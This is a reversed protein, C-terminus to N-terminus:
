PCSANCADFCQNKTRDTYKRCRKFCRDFRQDKMSLSDIPAKAAIPSSQTTSMPLRSANGDHPASVAQVSAETNATNRGNEACNQDRMRIKIERINAGAEDRGQKAGFPSEATEVNGANSKLNEQRALEKRLDQCNDGTRSASEEKALFRLGSVRDSLRTDTCGSLVVVGILAGVLAIKM